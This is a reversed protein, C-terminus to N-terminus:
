NCDVIHDMVFKRYGHEDRLEDKEADSSGKISIDDLFPMTIELICVKLVKNMADVLQTVSNTAGQRLTCMRVLGILIRMTTIDRSDVALQCQDYGFYLGGILYISRGAFTEAFENVSPGIGVNRITLKNIPQLDQIFRSSSNKKPVIFWRNSYPTNSPELLRMAVKEKLFDILKTLHARQVSIPKMNWPVHPVAFIVMPEITRPDACGIEQPSFAFAKRHKGLKERFKREEEPLLFDECRVRMKEKTEEM